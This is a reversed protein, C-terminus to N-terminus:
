ESVNRPSPSKEAIFECYLDGKARCLPEEAFFTAYGEPYDGGYVLDMFAAAVGRLMYCKESKAQGYMKLYGSAEYSDNVRIRLKEGPIIETVWLDGWGFAVAVAIFGKIEDEPSEIMPVVIQEWEYSKRIGEFTAYGCEHAAEILLRKSEERRGVGMRKEFDFSLQNYYQTSFLSLYVGFLPIIGKSERIRSGEMVAHIIKTGDIAM